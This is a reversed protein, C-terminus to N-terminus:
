QLSTCMTQGCWLSSSRIPEHAAGFLDVSCPIAGTCAELALRFPRRHVM